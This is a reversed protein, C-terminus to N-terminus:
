RNKSSEKELHRPRNFAEASQTPCSSKHVFATKVTGKTKYSLGQLRTRPSIVKFVFQLNWQGFTFVLYFLWPPSPNKKQSRALMPWEIRKNLCHKSFHYKTTIYPSKTEFIQNKVSDTSNGGNYNCNSRFTKRWHDRCKCDCYFGTWATFLPNLFFM